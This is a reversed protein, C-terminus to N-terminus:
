AYGGDERGRCACLADRQHRIRLINAMLLAFEKTFAALSGAVDTIDAEVRVVRGERILGLRIIRDLTAVDINGGSLVLLTNGSVKPLRGEM